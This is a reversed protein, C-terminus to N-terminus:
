GGRRGPKSREDAAPFVPKEPYAGGSVIWARKASICCRRFAPL